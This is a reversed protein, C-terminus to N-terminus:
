DEATPQIYGCTELYRQLVEVEEGKDGERLNAMNPLKIVLIRIFTLQYETKSFKTGLAGIFAM